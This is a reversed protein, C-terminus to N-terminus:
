IGAADPIRVLFATRYFQRDPIRVLFATRYFQRDPIRVLFPRETSSGTLFEFWFFATRYFQQDPIRVLFATRYFQRDPIRVWFATRYFQRDPFEFWFLGNQLVAPRSNSGFFATRYLQWLPIKEGFGGEKKKASGVGERFIGLDRRPKPLTRSREKVSDKSFTAMKPGM